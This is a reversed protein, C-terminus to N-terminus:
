VLNVLSILREANCSGAFRSQIRILIAAHLVSNPDYDRNIMGGAICTGMVDYFNNIYRVIFMTGLGFSSGARVQIVQLHGLVSAQLCCFNYFSTHFARDNTIFYLQTSRLLGFTSWPDIKHLEVACHYLMLNAFEYGDTWKREATIIALKDSPLTLIYTLMDPVTKLKIM